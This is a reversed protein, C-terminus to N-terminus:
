KTVQSGGHLTGWSMLGLEEAFLARTLPSDGLTSWGGLGGASFVADSDRFGGLGFPVCLGGPSPPARDEGVWAVEPWLRM